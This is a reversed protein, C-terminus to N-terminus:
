ADGWMAPEDYEKNQEMNDEGRAKRLAVLYKQYM